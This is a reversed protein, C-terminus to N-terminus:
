KPKETKSDSGTKTQELHHTANNTPALAVSTLEKKILTVMEQIQQDSLQGDVSFLVQGAKNFVVVSSSDDKLQWKEVLVKKRDEVYLTRPNKEQSSKLKRAIMWNPWSSVQMNVVAISAFVEGPFQEARLAERAKENLSESSPAVYFLVHIKGVLESSLWPGGGVKGGTSGELRIEPPVSNLPLSALSTNASYLIVLAILKRFM